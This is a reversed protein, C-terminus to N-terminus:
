TGDVVDWADDNKVDANDYIGHQNYCKKSLLFGKASEKM